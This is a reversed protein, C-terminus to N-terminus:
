CLESVGGGGLLRSNVGVGGGDGSNLFCLVFVVFRETEGGVGGGGCSFRKLVLFRM